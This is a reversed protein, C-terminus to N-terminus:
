YFGGNYSVDRTGSNEIQEGSISKAKSTFIIWRLGKVNVRPKEASKEPVGNGEKKISSVPDSYHKWPTQHCFDRKTRRGRGRAAGQREGKEQLRRRPSLTCRGLETCLLTPRTGSVKSATPAWNSTKTEQGLWLDKGNKAYNQHWSKLSDDKKCKKKKIGAIILLAIM